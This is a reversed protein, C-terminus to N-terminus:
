KAIRQTTSEPIELSHKLFFYISTEITRNNKDSGQSCMQWRQNGVIYRILLYYPLMSFLDDSDSIVEIRKRKLGFLLDALNEKKKEQTHDM